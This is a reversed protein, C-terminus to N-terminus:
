DVKLTKRIMEHVAESDVRENAIYNIAVGRGARNKVIYNHSRAEGSNSQERSTVYIVEAGSAVTISEQRFSDKISKPNADFATRLGAAATRPESRDPPLLLVQILGAPGALTPLCVGAPAAGAFSGKGIQKWNAGPVLSVGAGEFVVVDSSTTTGDGGQRQCGVLIMAPAVLLIDRMTSTM